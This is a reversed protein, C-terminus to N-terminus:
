AAHAAGGIYAAVVAPDSMAERAPGEAIAKGNNLVVVRDCIATVVDLHHEILLVTLGLEERADLIFRVMYEKEEQNMGAMPEDLVLLRPEAALARALEVRKQLGLPITDVHEDRVSQLQLLDIVDEVKRRNEIEAREAWVPYFFAALASPRMFIHRGMLINDLVSMGRFLAVNQFTRAVGMRAVKHPRTGEIRAGHLRISGEQPPYFGTIANVLTTKGSGNPGVLGFIEGQGVRISVSKLAQLGGFWRSVNECALAEPRGAAGDSARTSAAVLATPHQM